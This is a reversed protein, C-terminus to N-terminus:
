MHMLAGRLIHIGLEWAQRFRGTVSQLATLRPAGIGYAVTVRLGRRDGFEVSELAASKQTQLLPDPQTGEGSQPQGILARRYGQRPYYQSWDSCQAKERRDKM